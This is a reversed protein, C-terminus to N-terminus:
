NTVVVVADSSGGARAYVNGTFGIDASDSRHPEMSLVHYSTSTMAPASAQVTFFVPGGSISQMAVPAPGLDVWANPTLTFSQSSM